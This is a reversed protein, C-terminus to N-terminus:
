DFISSFIGKNSFYKLSYGVRLRMKACPDKGTFKKDTKEIEVALRTIQCFVFTFGDCM